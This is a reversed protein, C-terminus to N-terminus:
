GKEFKKIDDPTGLPAFDDALDIVFKKGQKILINYLESVYYENNTSLNNSLMFEAAVVFDKGKSFTYLGTSAINSIPEKEKTRKVFEKSDLEIFSLKKDNSNFAGLLGDNSTNKIRLLKSRLRTSVFHTDINYIVITADNNIHKKAHLVTEVQGKTTKDLFIIEYNLRPFKKEMIKKIFNRVNYKKEHEQLCIFIIKEAIDLPLSELSWEFLTRGKVELLFKPEIIGEDKFRQANGAMPIVFIPKIEEMKKELQKTTSFTIALDDIYIDGYPKGYHIEDFPIDWKKLWESTIPGIKKTVEAVNGNCTRMHRGTYIILYHGEKKWERMKSILDKNPKVELYTENAKKLKCIVGDLDIVIRM